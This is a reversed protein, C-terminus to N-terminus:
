REEAQSRGKLRRLLSRAGSLPGNLGLRRKCGWTVTLNWAAVSASTAVAAGVVGFLLGAALLGATLVLSWLFTMTVLAREEGLLAMALGNAGCATSVLQAVALILILDLAEAYVEGALSLVFPGAVALAAYGALAISFALASVANMLRQVEQLDGAYFARPLLPAFYANAAALGVALLRATKDAVFFLAAETHGVVFAVGITPANQFYLDVITHGWLYGSTKKLERVDDADLTEAPPAKRSHLRIGLLHILCMAAAGGVVCALMLPATSAQFTILLGFAAIAAVLWGIQHPVLALFTSGHARLIAMMVDLLAFLGAALGVLVLVEGPGLEGEPGSVAAVIALLAATATSIGLVRLLSWRTVARAKGPSSTEMRPIFKSAILPQGLGCFASLIRASSFGAAFRGFEVPSSYRAFLFTLLVNAVISGLRLALIGLGIWLGPGFKARLM